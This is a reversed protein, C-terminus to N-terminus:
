ALHQNPTSLISAILNIVGAHLLNQTGSVEDCQILMASLTLEVLALDIFDKNRICRKVISVLKHEMDNGFLIGRNLSNGDSMMAVM